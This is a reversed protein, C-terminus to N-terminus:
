KNLSEISFKKDISQNAIDFLKEIHGSRRLFKFVLNEYSLEGGKELGSKRYKKLRDKINKLIKEDDETDKTKIAKNIKKIWSKVKKSLIEKDVKSEMKKPTEIWEDNMISYVGTAIHEEEIDQVYLEVDFGYIKIEHNYNFVMKKLDFLKKYLESNEDFQSYDVIIHVDFDSYNSWNFNSLSGTLVIDEVFVDEELSDIFEESIEELKNKINKKLKSKEPDSYNDWVKPNLTDKVSFSDLIKRFEEV